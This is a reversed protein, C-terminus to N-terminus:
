PTIHGVAMLALALAAGAGIGAIIWPVFARVWVGTSARSTGTTLMAAERAVKDGMLVEVNHLAEKLAEATAPAVAALQAATTELMRLRADLKQDNLNEVIPRVVKMDAFLEIVMSKVTM